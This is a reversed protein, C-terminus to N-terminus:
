VNNHNSLNCGTWRLTSNLNPTKLFNHRQINNTQDYFIKGDTDDHEILGEDNSDNSNDNDAHEYDDCRNM